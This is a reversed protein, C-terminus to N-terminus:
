VILKLTIDSQWATGDDYLWGTRPPTLLGTEESALWGGEDTIDDGVKWWGDSSYFIYYDGDTKKYVKGQNATKTDDLKYDGMLDPYEEAAQGTSMIRIYAGDTVTLLSDAHWKGDDHDDYYEWEKIQHPLLNTNSAVSSVGGADTAPDDGIMWHGENDYFMKDTGDLRSWVPKENHYEGTKEYVGMRDYQVKGAEGSSEVTLYRPGYIIQLELTDDSTWATGDWYRWGTSDLGTSDIGALEASVTTFDPGVTWIGDRSYFIYYDGDTKKYVPTLHAAKTDDLKYDGMLHPYKELALSRASAGITIHDPFEIISLTNIDPWIHDEDSYDWGVVVHICREDRKICWLEGNFSLEFDGYKWVRNEGQRRYVGALDSNEGTKDKITIIEPYEPAGETVTLLPDTQWKGGVAYEWESIQHPLLNTNTVVTDVGGANTAPDPGIM